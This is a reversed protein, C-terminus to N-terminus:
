RVSATRGWSAVALACRPSCGAPGPGSGLVDPVRDWERAELDVGRWGM